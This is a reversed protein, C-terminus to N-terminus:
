RRCSGDRRKLCGEHRRASRAYARLAPQPYFVDDDFRTLGGYDFLDIGKYTTAFTYWFVPGIGLARRYRATLAYLRSLRNAMGRPTTQWAFVWEERNAELARGEAAPWTTETVWVQKHGEGFLRLVGRVKGVARLVNAPSSTFLNIATADFHGGVGERYLAALHNWAFGALGATVVQARPDRRKIADYAARLLRAYGPAWAQESEGVAYWYADFQPENWIQWQRVPRRPLDSRRKWFVGAPGYRRVLTDLYAAFDAAREPPSAGREPYRAAWKPTYIVIPLLRIGHRAALAVARDTDVFRVRGHARPQAAAWSFVTRVSEVGSRAMLRFQRGQTTGPASTGARNWNVGYFGRPVSRQGAQATGTAILVASLLLLTFISGTRPGM